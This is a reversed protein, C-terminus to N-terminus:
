NFMSGFTGSATAQLRARAEGAKIKADALARHAVESAGLLESEYNCLKNYLRTLLEERRQIANPKDAWKVLDEEIKECEAMIHEELSTRVSRLMNEDVGAKILTVVTPTSDTCQCAEFGRAVREWRDVNHQPIYYVGGADRLLLGHLHDAIDSLTGGIATGDLTQLKREYASLVRSDKYPDHDADYTTIAHGEVKATLLTEYSNNADGRHEKVVVFGNDAKRALPRVLTSGNGYAERLAEGLASLPTRPHPLFQHLDSEILVDELTSRNSEGAPKWFTVAGTVRAQINTPM